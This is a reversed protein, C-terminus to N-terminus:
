APLPEYAWAVLREFRTLKGAVLEKRIKHPLFLRLSSKLPEILTYKPVGSKM